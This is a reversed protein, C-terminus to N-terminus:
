PPSMFEMVSAHIFGHLGAPLNSVGGCVCACACVCVFVGVLEMYELDKIGNCVLNTGPSTALVSLALVLEAKSGVELGFGHARGAHTLSRAHTLTHLHLHRLLPLLCM